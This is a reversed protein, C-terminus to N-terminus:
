PSSIWLNFHSITYQVSLGHILLLQHLMNKSQMEGESNYILFAAEM